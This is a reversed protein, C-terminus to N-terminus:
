AAAQGLLAAWTNPGVVGDPSLGHALQFAKVSAETGPGFSGDADIGLHQQVIRVEPGKSGRRLYPLATKTPTTSATMTTSSSPSSSSSSSSASAPLAARQRYAVVGHKAGMAQAQYAIWRGATQEVKFAGPGQQWLVPILASARQVVAPPPPVDPVWDPGPFAGLGQPVVQPWPPTVVPPLATTHVPGPMQRPQDPIGPVFPPIPQSTSGRRSGRAPRPPRVRPDPRATSSNEPSGAHQQLLADILKGALWATLLGFLNM